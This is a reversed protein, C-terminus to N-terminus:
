EKVLISRFSTKGDGHEEKITYGLRMFDASIKQHGQEFGLEEFDNLAYIGQRKSVRNIEAAYNLPAERDFYFYLNFATIIDFTNDAFPLLLPNGNIRVFSNGESNIREAFGLNVPDTDVGTFQWQPLYLKGYKCFLGKGCGIDLVKATGKLLEPRHEKLYDFLVYTDWTYAHTKGCQEILEFWEEQLDDDLDRM